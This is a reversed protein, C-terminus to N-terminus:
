ILGNGKVEFNFPLPLGNNSLEGLLSLSFERMLRSALVIKQKQNSGGSVGGNPVQLLDILFQTVAQDDSLGAGQFDSRLKELSEYFNPRAETAPVALYGSASAAGKESNDWDVQTLFDRTWDLAETENESLGLGDAIKNIGESATELLVSTEFLKASQLLDTTM